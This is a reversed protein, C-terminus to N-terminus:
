NINPRLLFEGLFPMNYVLKMLFNELRYKIGPNIEFSIYNM